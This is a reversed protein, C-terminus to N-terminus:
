LKEGYAGRLEEHGNDIFSDGRFFHQKEMLNGIANAEVFRKIRWHLKAQIVDLPESRHIGERPALTCGPIDGIERHTVDHFSKYNRLAPLTTIQGAKPKYNWYKNM